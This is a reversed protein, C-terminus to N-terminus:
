VVQAGRPKLLRSSREFQSHIGTMSIDNEEDKATNNHETFPIQKFRLYM